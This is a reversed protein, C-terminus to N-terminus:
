SEGDGDHGCAFARPELTLAGFDEVLDSAAGEEEVDDCGCFFDNGGVVDVADDAVFGVADAGGDGVGANLEDKLGFLAAGAVGHLHELGVEFEGARWERFM